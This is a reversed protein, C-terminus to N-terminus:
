NTQPTGGHQNGKTRATLAEELLILLQAHISRREFEALEKIRKYLNAELRLHMQKVAKNKM